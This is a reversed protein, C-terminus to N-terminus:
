SGPTTEQHICRDSKGRHINKVGGMISSDIKNALKVNKKLLNGTKEEFSNLQIDTLPEM